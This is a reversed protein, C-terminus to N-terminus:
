LIDLFYINNKQKNKNKKGDWSINIGPIKLIIIPRKIKKKKCTNNIICIINKNININWRRCLYFLM